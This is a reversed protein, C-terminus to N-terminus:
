EFDFFDDTTLEKIPKKGVYQGQLISKLAKGQNHLNEKLSAKFAETDYTLKYHQTDGQLKLHLNLGSLATEDIAETGPMRRTQKFNALPIVLSYAIKGDFAHTGSLQIRTITSYIEM